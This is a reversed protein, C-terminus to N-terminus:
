APDQGAQAPGEGGLGGGPQDGLWGSLAARGLAAEDREAHHQRLYVTLDAVRAAHAADSTLPAPGLAHGVRVMVDECTTAVVSRVRAALLAGPEGDARGADVDAAAGGLVMRAAHLQADVAGLHMLAVQDPERRACAAALTRALAVAAGYWCAAVGMGGWAFGPRTLYWEDAGVPTAPVGDYHTAVSVLDVLGRSVWGTPDDHTAGPHRLDVVFARRTTESTHATVVAHDVSRALSCWPKTGDLRHGGDDTPTAVLRSGPAHAAWVGWTSGPPPAAAGAQDLIALADLHPEAVRAVTLDVAALSALTSWLEATAGRGPLPTAALRPLLALAAPVDGAAAQAEVLLQRREPRSGSGEPSAAATLPVWAPTPPSPYPAM